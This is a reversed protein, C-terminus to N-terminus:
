PQQIVVWYKRVPTGATLHGKIHLGGEACQSQELHPNTSSLRYAIASIYVDHSM